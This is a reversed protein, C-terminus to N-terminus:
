RSFLLLISSYFCYTSCGGIAVLVLAFVSDTVTVPVVFAILSHAAVNLPTLDVEDNSATFVAMPDVPSGLTVRVVSVGYSATTVISCRCL